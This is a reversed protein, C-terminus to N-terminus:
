ARIFYLMSAYPVGFGSGTTSNSSFDGTNASISVNSTHSHNSDGANGIATEAYGHAHNVDVDGHGGPYVGMSHAHNGNLGGGATGAPGNKALGSGLGAIVGGPAGHGHRATAGANNSHYATHSHTVNAANIGFANTNMAVSHSHTNTNVKTGINNVNYFGAGQGVISVKNDKLNPVNFSTSGSGGYLVGIINYLNTYEPNTSLNLVRGDCPILGVSVYDSSSYDLFSGAVSVIGGTPLFNYSDGELSVNDSKFSEM